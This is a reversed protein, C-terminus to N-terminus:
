PLGKPVQEAAVLPQAPNGLVLVNDRLAATAEHSYGLALYGGQATKSLIFGLATVEVVDGAFTEPAGPSHVTIDVLGITHRDGNVDAYSLACAQCPLILVAILLRLRRAIRALRGGPSASNELGLRDLTPPLDV